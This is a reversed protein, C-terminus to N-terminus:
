RLRRSGSPVPVCHFVIAARSPSRGGRGRTPVQPSLCWPMEVHDGSGSRLLAPSIGSAWAKNTPRPPWQESQHVAAGRHASTLFVETGLLEWHLSAEEMEELSLGGTTATPLDCAFGLSIMGGAKRGEM